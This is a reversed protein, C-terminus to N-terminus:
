PADVVSPIMRRAAALEANLLAAGAAGRVLNHALVCFKLDLVECARLRGVSVTMGEGRDRDLRPQPHTGEVVEIPNEPASPLGRAEDPHFNALAEAAQEVSASDRLGVSVSVFHGDQVPVRTCTASVSFTASDIRTDDLSGLIKQPESAVKEEEGPILPIVNGDIDGAGKRGAGSIAQLTTVMVREVGFRRHLPALALALGAVSCNPNTVIGGSWPQADILALHDPNVEPIILPVDSQMRHASANSVVLHGARALAPEVERAVASPLASLILPADFPGDPPLFTLKTGALERGTSAPSAAVETLEFWPHGQLRSVLEMGVMGSAGLVAVAIPTRDSNM